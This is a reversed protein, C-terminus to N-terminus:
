KILIMKKTESYPGAEIRYFYIGSTFGAANWDVSYSDPTIESNVLIATERGLIDYVKLIVKMSKSDNGSIAPIDFKILTVPNFPNPYNNYLAFKGPIETSIQQIGIVSRVLTVIFANLSQASDPGNFSWVRWSCRVSDGTTGFAAAITDLMSRRISFVSDHGSNNSLFSYEATGLLKKLKFKYYVTPNTTAKQWIFNELGPDNVSVQIRTLSPPTLISFSSMAAGRVRIYNNITISDSGFSNTVRLSVAYYGPTNYTVTPNQANSGPPTGGPFTWNWGTPIGASQDTFHVPNSYEISVSDSSFMAIPIGSVPSCGNSSLIASRYTNLITNMRSSQGQTFINMCNDDTYDMYNMFMVGPTNPSCADFHPYGPCGYNEAGQNPTDEVQDSGACSGNDDGWIHILYFWHGIEHTATRGLNFPSTATGITGFYQYGIVVGDTNAPGGPYEAYGLIPPALNCVWLNLYKTRDWADHGGTATFKMSNDVQFQVVTTPTRTVGLSPNNNPDRKALCFEIQVDAGLPKFPAPTHNTDSNMRRFDDNLVKIQTLIQSHSINQVPTNVNYIVHIVVPITVILNNTKGKHEKTYNEIYKDIEELNKRYAEDKALMDKMHLATACNRKMEGILEGSNNKISDNKLSFALLLAAAVAMVLVIFPRYKNYM